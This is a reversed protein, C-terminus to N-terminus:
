TSEFSIMSNEPQFAKLNEEVAENLLFLTRQILDYYRNMSSIKM